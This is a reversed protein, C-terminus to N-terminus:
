AIINYPPFLPEIMERLLDYTIVTCEENFMSLNGKPNILFIRELPTGAAKYAIADNDRNGFGGFFPNINAPFLHAIEM